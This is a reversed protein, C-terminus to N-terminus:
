EEAEKLLEPNDHINGIVEIEDVIDDDLRRMNHRQGFYKVFYKNKKYNTWEVGFVGCDFQVDGVSFIEGSPYKAAIIDGEFIKEGNRDILGTFQGVTEPVVETIGGINNDYTDTGDIIFYKDVSDGYYDTQHVIGGYVWEGTEVNKGRYLIEKM